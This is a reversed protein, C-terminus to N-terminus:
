LLTPECDVDALLAQEKEHFNKAMHGREGCTFCRGRYRSRRRSSGSSMSRDDDSNDWDGGNGNRAWGKDHQRWRAKWQEKTLLLHEVGQM